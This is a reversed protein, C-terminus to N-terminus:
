DHTETSRAAVIVSINEGAFASILYKTFYYDLTGLPPNLPFPAGPARGGGVSWFKKLKM